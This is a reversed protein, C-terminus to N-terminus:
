NKCRESALFNTLNSLHEYIMASDGVGDIDLSDDSACVECGIHEIVGKEGENHRACPYSAYDISGSSSSANGAKTQPSDTPM